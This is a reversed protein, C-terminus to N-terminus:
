YLTSSDVLWVKIKFVVVNAMICFDSSDVLWAKFVVANAMICFDFCGVLWAKFVVSNAMICFDSCGVLWAKFVVSNAMICFDFCGVLWAKFVVANAMICFDSCGVLWAKFVVSNAMICFDSCGVLWAKSVVANAMICFDFCGVLWAKSVVTNAMICFDSSVVTNTTIRLEPHYSCFTGVPQLVLTARYLVVQTVIVQPLVSFDAWARLKLNRMWLLVDGRNQCQCPQFAPWAWCSAFLVPWTLALLHRSKSNTVRSSLVAIDALCTPVSTM